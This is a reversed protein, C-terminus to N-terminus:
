SQTVLTVWPFALNATHISTFYVQKFCNPTGFQWWLLTLPGDHVSPCTVASGAAQMMGAAGVHTGGSYPVLVPGGSDGPMAAMKGSVQQTARITEFRGV